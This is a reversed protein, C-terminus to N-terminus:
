INLKTIHSVVVGIYFFILTHIFLNLHLTFFFQYFVHVKQWVFTELLHADGFPNDTNTYGQSCFCFFSVYVTIFCCLFSCDCSVHFKLHVFVETQTTENKHKIKNAFKKNRRYM